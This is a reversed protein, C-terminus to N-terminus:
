GVEPGALAFQMSPDGPAANEGLFMRILPRQISFGLNQALSVAPENLDPIDWFTPEGPNFAMLADLLSLGGEASNAAVPGLYLAQSGARALAFGSPRGRETELVVAANSQRALAPLLVRRPVGFAVKDLEQVLAMDGLQWPRFGSGPVAGGGTPTRGVWRKLTWESRFGLRDYVLKGAPTADLKICRVGRTRLYTISHELLARGIGRRRYDPHVLVMGVWALESGYITTTVTGAAMGNWEALFCGEPETALFREWDRLTQNWGALARVLDAFPLDAQTLTRLHL